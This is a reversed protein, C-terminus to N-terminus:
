VLVFSFDCDMEDGSRYDYDLQGLAVPFAKTYTFTAVKNDFEDIKDQNIQINFVYKLVDYNNKYKNFFLKIHDLM